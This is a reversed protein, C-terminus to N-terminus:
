AQHGLADIAQDVTRFVREEGLEDLVGTRRAMELVPLRVDALALAIGASRLASILQQLIEATTIDLSENAGVELIVAQPLPDRAGILRKIRDRTPAANAYFLPAELRLVLVGPIHEYDPHREVDGFAGPTGPRRALVSV